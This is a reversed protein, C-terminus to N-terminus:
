IDHLGGTIVHQREKVERLLVPPLDPALLTYNILAAGVQLQWSPLLLQLPFCSSIVITAYLGILAIGGLSLGRISNPPIPGEIDPSEPLVALEADDHSYTLSHM